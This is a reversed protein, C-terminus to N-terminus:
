EKGSSQMIQQRQEAYDPRLYLPYLNDIYPNAQLRLDFLDGRDNIKAFAVPNDFQSNNSEIIEILDLLVKKDQENYFYPRKVWSKAYELPNM